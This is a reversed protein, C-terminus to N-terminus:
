SGVTPAVRSLLELLREQRGSLYLYGVLAEMGTSYRYEVVDSHRPVGGKANRGRRVVEKEEETLEPEWAHIIEAQRSAQVYKVASRHLEHMKAPYGVLKTRIFLEFVADGVYALALPSLAKLDLNPDVFM